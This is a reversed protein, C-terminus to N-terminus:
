SKFTCSFFIKQYYYTMSKFGSSILVLNKKRRLQLFTTTKKLIQKCRHSAIRLTQLANICFILPLQTRGM